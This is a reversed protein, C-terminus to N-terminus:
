QRECHGYEVSCLVIPCNGVHYSQINEFFFVMTCTGLHVLVNTTKSLCDQQSREIGQPKAQLIVHIQLTIGNVRQTHRKDIYM